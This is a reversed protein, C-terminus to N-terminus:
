VVSKRDPDLGGGKLQTLLYSLKPNKTLMDYLSVNTGRFGLNLSDSVEQLAKKYDPWTNKAFGLFLDSALKETQEKIVKNYDDKKILIKM